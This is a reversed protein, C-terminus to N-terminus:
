NVSPQFFKGVRYNNRIKALNQSRNSTLNSNKKKNVQFM